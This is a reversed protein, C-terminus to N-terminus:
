RISAAGSAAYKSPSVQRRRRWPAQRRHRHPDLRLKGRQQHYRHGKYQARAGNIVLWQYSESHFTLNGVQFQFETQGTPPTAGTLYKSVFGFNARGTLLSALVGRTCPM